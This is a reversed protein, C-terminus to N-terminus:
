QEYLENRVKRKANEQTIHMALALKGKPVTGRLTVETTTAEVSVNSLGNEILANQIQTATENTKTDVTIESSNVVATNRELKPTEFNKIGKWFIILSGDTDIRNVNFAVMIDSDEFSISRLLYTHGVINPVSNKYLIGDAKYGNSKRQEVRIETENTPPKYNLLFAAGSTAESASALPIEGLDYIFGYDAGAFGVSLNGRSLEIDSGRGYESTKQAFSYYAGGGRIMLKGDYKERPMIRFVNFGDKQAQKLDKASPSIFENELTKIQSNLEIIKQLKQERTIEQATAICAFLFLSIIINLFFRM